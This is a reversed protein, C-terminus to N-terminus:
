PVHLPEDAVEHPKGVTTQAAGKQLPLRRTGWCLQSPAPDHGVPAPAAQGDDWVHWPLAHTQMAAGGPHPPPGPVLLQVPSVVSM